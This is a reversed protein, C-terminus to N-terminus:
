SDYINHTDNGKIASCCEMKHLFWLKNIRDGASLTHTTQQKWPHIFSSQITEWLDKHLDILENREPLCVEPGPIAPGWPLRINWRILFHRAAKLILRPLEWGEWPSTPSHKLLKRDQGASLITPPKLTLRELPWTAVDWSKLPTTRRKIAHNRLEWILLRHFLITLSTKLM